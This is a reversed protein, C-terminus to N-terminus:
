GLRIGDERVAVKYVVPRLQGEERQHGRRDFAELRNLAAEGTRALLLHDDAANYILLVLM